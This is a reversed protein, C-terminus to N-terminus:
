PNEVTITTKVSSAIFCHHHASDHLQQLRTPDPNEPGTFAIRPRLVVTSIWRVGNENKTMTGVAQDEYAAVTFGAKAAVALFTLMHCSAIAAVFAEEPDIRTGDSLPEPVVAPSSSATIVEGGDFSWTHVRSYKGKVFDQGDSTWRITAHHLSM